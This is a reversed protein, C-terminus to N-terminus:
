VGVCQFAAWFYPHAFPRETDDMLAFRRQVPLLQALALRTMETLAVERTPQGATAAQAELIEQAQAATLDRLWLQAERLAAAKSKGARLLEYAKGMLLGTAVDAVAWLTGWATPAGAYLPGLALGFHEDAQEAPNVLATECASLVVLQAHPLNLLELMAGLTLTEGNALLLPSELPNALDYVGHCAFHLLHASAANELVAHRTGQERWLVQARAGGWCAEIQECEYEAFPLDGTPNAVALLLKRRGRERAWLIQFLTLSPAYRIVFEDMLYRRRGDEDWWCAHLPLLALARNPVILLPHVGAGLKARLRRHVPSLLEQYLAGLRAEMQQLWGERDTYYDQAWGAVALEWLRELTFDPIVVVESSGDPYVLFAYSGEETVRLSLITTQAEQALQLIEERTLPQAAPLFNPDARRIDAIVEGLERSVQQYEHRLQATREERADPPLDPPDPRELEDAIARARFLLEEYRRQLPEPANKPRLEQATLLDILLRSKGREAVALAEDYLELKMLCILLNEYIHLHEDMIQRRRQPSLGEARLREVLDAAERLYPLADEYRREGIYLRGLNALTRVKEHPVDHRNYIELAEEYAEVAAELRRLQYLANGKNTLTTALYPEYVEPQQAALRRHIGEAEEYAALAAEYRHLGQLANGLNNLTAAVFPEYVEPQAHALRRYLGLAEEYAAVAEELRRLQYLANGLNNLTAAVDPEYVEPQAHALRRYLGLAEEYAAVAEELRRLQHLAAGLNNLTGAVDPAYVQPQQQALRRYIALAEEYAAVAAEYRRLEQLANGLNNLTGAVDPAYVQPQQQALRRRIGLAEEHAALAAEYRRLEQLANGKSTLTGALDPAYVAPQAAALSRYLGEAEEYAALAAEYRRLEQLANGKNTLTRALDPAYVAPQAAALSRYLGEAEEYAALAAEYRRLEQLANGKNTLTRALDPAYVAPQAAALSRYLGEAEEYAAVAAEYAAVAAEYRRLEQLANGKSTLTRALDPAYVAPQAAALSRYLGEAEEYAALAAEYRRLERLANGLNNLTGAVDPAYVEPQQAALQRHIEEAEEYAALAAEYRRLRYLANGKNTLTRALDPAYVEPQQAALQGHIEEAEEYAALAAEYRRLEQLANGKNTLTRALDPAYVEPQQAALQGHIEEAEEYAALAAEYRRLEQLANGKNTLTRALDPAYVEPQQAALQRRIGEAEEYAALAAEYRRLEQLANGKSTLTRALDPAYVEPQQAALQRRIGEAEEYAALAAEYRRLRYLANGKNTLTGALNPAYVAPQAAALSRYLGEAEEYAALAAELQRAEYLGRGKFALFLAQCPEDRLARSLHYGQECAQVGAQLAARQQELPFQRFQEVLLAQGLIPLLLLSYAEELRGQQHLSVFLRQVQVAAAVIEGQALLAILAAIEREGAQQAHQLAPQLPARDRGGLAIFQRFPRVWAARPDDSPPIDDPIDFADAPQSVPADAQVSAHIIAALLLLREILTIAEQPNMQDVQQQAYRLFEESLLEPHQQALAVLAEVSQVQLLASLLERYDPSQM